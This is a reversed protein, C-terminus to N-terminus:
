KIKELTMTMSADSFNSTAVVRCSNGDVSTITVYLEADKKKLDKSGSIVKRHSLTYSCDSNWTIDYRTKIKMTKNEETQHRKSRVIYFDGFDSSSIKFVGTHFRTCDLNKSFLPNIIFISFILISISKM